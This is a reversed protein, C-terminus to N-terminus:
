VEEIEILSKIEEIDEEDVVTITILTKAIYDVMMPKIDMVLGMENAYDIIPKLEGVNSTEFHFTFIDNEKEFLIVLVEDKSNVKEIRILEDNDENYLFHTIEPKTSTRERKWEVRGKKDYEKWVEGGKDNYYHIMNDMDDYEFNHIIRDNEDKENIRSLKIINGRDDFTKSIIYGNKKKKIEKM